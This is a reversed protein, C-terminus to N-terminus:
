REMLPTQTNWNRRMRTLIKKNSKKVIAVRTSIVYYRMTTKIGMERIVLSTLCGKMHKNTM